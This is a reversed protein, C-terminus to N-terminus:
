VGEEVYTDAEIEARFVVREARCVICACNVPHLRAVDRVGKPILSLLYVAVTRQDDLTEFSM